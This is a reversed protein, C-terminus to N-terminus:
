LCQYSPTRALVTVKQDVENLALDSSDITIIKSATTPTTATITVAPGIKVTYIFDVTCTDGNVKWDNNTFDVNKAGAALEYEFIDDGDFIAAVFDYYTEDASTAACTTLDIEDEWAGPLIATASADELKM